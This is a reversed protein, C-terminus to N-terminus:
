RPPEPPQQVPPVPPVPPAPPVQPRPQPVPPQQPAPQGPYGPATPQAYGPPPGPQPPYGPQAQGPQPPYGPQAPGPYPQQPPYYAQPQPAYGPAPPYPQQAPPAYMPAPRPAKAPKPSFAYVVVPVVASVAAVLLTAGAVRWWVDSYGGYIGLPELNPFSLPIAWVLATIWLFALTVWASARTVPSRGNTIFRHVYVQTILLVLRALLVLGIWRAIQGAWVDADVTDGPQLPGNWIKLLGVVLLLVNIITSAALYWKNPGDGVAGDLLVMGAFGAVLLLTLWARGAVGSQDGVIIFIGGLVAAAVLVGLTLWLTARRLLSQRASVGPAPDHAPPHAAGTVPPQYSM